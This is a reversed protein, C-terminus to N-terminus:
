RRKQRFDPDSLDRDRYAKTLLKNWLEPHIDMLRNTAERRAEARLRNTEAQGESAHKNTHHKKKFCPICDSRFYPSENTRYFNDATMALLRTCDICRRYLTPNDM